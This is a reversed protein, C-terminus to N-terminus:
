GRGEEVERSGGKEEEEEEETKSNGNRLGVSRCAQAPRDDEQSTLRAKIKQSLQTRSEGLPREECVGGQWKAAM